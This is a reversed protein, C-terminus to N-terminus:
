AQLAVQGVGSHQAINTHRQSVHHYRKVAGELAQVLQQEIFCGDAAVEVIHPIHNGLCDLGDKAAFSILLRVFRQLSEGSGVALHVGFADGAEDVREFHAIGHFFLKFRNSRVVVSPELANFCNYSLM